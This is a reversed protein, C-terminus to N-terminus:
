DKEKNSNIDYFSAVEVKEQTRPNEKNAYFRCVSKAYCYRCPLANDEKIPTAEIYGSSLDQVAQNLVLYAYESLLQLDEVDVLTDKQYLNSKSTLSVDLLKDDNTRQLLSADMQQLINLDKPMFGTLMGGVKKKGQKKFENSIPFIFSGVFQKELTKKAVYAYFMLQINTGYYLKKLSQKSNGTKYDIIRFMNEFEDIRDIVGTISIERDPLMVTANHKGFYYEFHTPVFSSSAQHLNLTLCLSASEERIVQLAFANDPATFIVFDEQQLLHELTNQVWVQITEESLKGITQVHEKVFLEAMKHMLTGIEKSEVRAVKREQVNLGQTLFYQRPCSLFNTIKTISTKNNPFFLDSANEIAQQAVMLRHKNKNYHSLANAALLYDALEKKEYIVSLHEAQSPNYALYPLWLDDANRKNHSFEVLEQVAIEEELGAHRIALPTEVGFMQTLSLVLSSPLGKEEDGTSYSLYLKRSPLCLDQMVKSRARMNLMRITPSINLHALSHIEKDVILGIDAKVSPYDGENAGLVFLVDCEPFYTSEADGILVCSTTAPVQAMTIAAMGSELMEIWEKWEIEEHEFLVVMSQLLEMLKTESQRLLKAGLLNGLNEEQNAINKIKAQLSLDQMLHQLVEAKQLYTKSKKMNQELTKIWHGLQIRTQEFNPHKKTFVCSESLLHGKKLGYELVFNEFLEIDKVNFYEHKFLKMWDQVSNSFATKFVLLVFQSLQMESLYVNTDFYFDINSEKFLREITQKKSELNSVSVCIRNHKIQYQKNLRKIQRICHLVEEEMSAAVRVDLFHRGDLQAPKPLLMNSLIHNAYAHENETCPIVKVAISDRLLIAKQYFDQTFLFSNRKQNSVEVGAFVQKAHKCLAAFIAYGQETLSDFGCFYFQSTKVLSSNPIQDLCVELKQSSDLFSDQWLNQYAQMLLAIDHMKNDLYKNQSTVLLDEYGIKCSLLQQITQYMEQAFGLSYANRNFFLFHELNDLIAKRMLLVSQHSTLAKLDVGAEQLILSSLKSIGVVHINMTSEIELLEFIMKEAQLSFRDPVVVFHDCFLDHKTDRIQLITQKTAEMLRPSVFLNLANM